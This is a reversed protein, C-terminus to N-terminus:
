QITNYQITNYQIKNYQLTNYQITKYKLTNYQKTNYQITNYHNCVLILKNKMSFFILGHTMIIWGKKACWLDDFEDSAIKDEKM